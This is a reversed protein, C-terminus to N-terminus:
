SRPAKDIQLKLWECLACTLFRGLRRPIVIWPTECHWAQLFVALQTSEQNRSRRDRDYLGPLYCMLSIPSKEAHTDAYWELWQRSDLYLKPKNTAVIDLWQSFESRAHCTMIDRMVSDRAATLSSIGLGTLM